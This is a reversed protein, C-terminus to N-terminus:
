GGEAAAVTGVALRCAQEVESASGDGHECGVSLQVEQDVVVYWSVVVGGARQQTYTLVPRNALESETLGGFSADGTASRATLLEELTVAVADLDAGPTLPQQVLRVRVQAAATGGPAVVLEPAPGGARSQETWGDPAQFSALQAQVTVPGGGLLAWAGVAALAVAAAGVLLTRRRRPPHGGAFVEPRVPPSQDLRSPDPRSPAPVALLAGLAVVTEPQETSTAAVGLRQHVVQALLPIRSSGGVLVVAALSRGDPGVAGCEALAGALLDVVSRVRASILQELEPRTVHADPLDGPLPVDAYAHRSLTEKAGRVDARLSRRQRREGVGDGRLVAAWRDRRAQPVGRGLHELLAHDVDSGGFAPDGRTALVRFGRETRRLISVDTTGAGVDLVAVLGGPAQRAGHAVAAAVPEPVGRVEVALGAAAAFLVGTRVPGWDAPHTLVLQGAARGGHVARAETVARGLVAALAHVVPLVAGGLLLTQEDVRSKPHPEYRAPDLAAQREAEAGVFVSHGDFCVGSPMLPAGDILVVAAPAGDCSATVCTSSTGLDVAVRLGTFRPNM